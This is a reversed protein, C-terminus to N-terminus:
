YICLPLTERIFARYSSFFFESIPQNYSDDIKLWILKGNCLVDDWKCVIYAIFIIPSNISKSVIERSYFNGRNSRERVFKLKESSSYFAGNFTWLIPFDDLKEVYQRINSTTRSRVFFEEGISVDLFIGLFYKLFFFLHERDTVKLWVTEAFSACRM